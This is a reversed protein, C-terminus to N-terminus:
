KLGFLDSHYIYSMSIYNMMHNPLDTSDIRDFALFSVQVNKWKRLPNMQAKIGDLLGGLNVTLIKVLFYCALLSILLRLRCFYITAVVNYLCDPMRISCM